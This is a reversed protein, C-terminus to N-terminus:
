GRLRKLFRQANEAFAPKTKAIFELAYDLSVDGAVSVFSGNLSCGNSCSTTTFQDRSDTTQLVFTPARRINFRKFAPPDIQWAVPSEGIIQQVAALTKKMSEDKLGRIVMTAGSRAAQTALLKLSARPIGLSVFIMLTPQTTAGGEFAQRNDSYRRAITEVDLAPSQPKITPLRPLPERAIDEMNPMPHAARAGDIEQQTPWRPEGACAPLAALAALLLLILRDSFAPM